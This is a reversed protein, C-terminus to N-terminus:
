IGRIQFRGPGSKGMVLDVFAAKGFGVSVFKQKLIKSDSDLFALAVVCPVPSPIPVGVNVVTLRATQGSALGVMGSSFQVSPLLSAVPGQAGTHQAFFLTGVVLTLLIRFDRRVFGRRNKMRDGESRRDADAFSRLGQLHLLAYGTVR